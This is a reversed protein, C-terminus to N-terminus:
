DNNNMREDIIKKIYKTSCLKVFFNYKLCRRFIALLFNNVFFYNSKKWEVGTNNLIYIIKEKRSILENIKKNELIDYILYDFMKNVCTENIFYIYDSNSMREKFYDINSETVLFLDDIMKQSKLNMISEPRNIRYFYLPVDLYSFTEAHYFVKFAVADDEHLVGEPFLINYKLYINRKCAFTWISSCNLRIKNKDFDCSKKFTLIDKKEDLEYYNFLILDDDFKSIQEIMKEDVYDDSDVFIIYEGEANKIGINRAASVGRNSISIVKISDNNLYSDCIKKSNDSSGDDILLLEYNKITQKLISEICFGVYKETNYVPVVFSYRPKQKKKKKETAGIM